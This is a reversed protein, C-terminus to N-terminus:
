FAINFGVYPGGFSFNSLTRHFTRAFVGVTNLQPTVDIVGSGMDNSQIANFLIKAEWGAEIKVMAYNCSSYFYAIGLRESFSPIMQTRGGNERISQLNVAPNGTEILLPSTSTYNTHNTTKGMLLAARAQGIFNLGNGLSYTCDFGCQPGAGTFLSPVTTTRSTDATGNSYLSTLKQKVRAFSVGSFLNIHLYTGIEVYQGYHINMENFALHVKGRAKTYPAADPGISSLPGVMDNTAASHTASTSSSFHEWNLAINSGQSHLIGRIALDFGFSYKPHLDFLEWRPSFVPTAINQNFPFAEAAYSLNSTNPKVFLARFQTDITYLPSSVFVNSNDAYEKLTTDSKLSLSSLFILFVSHKLSHKVFNEKYNKKRHIMKNSTSDILITPLAIKITSM